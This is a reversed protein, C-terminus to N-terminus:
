RGVPGQKNKIFLIFLYLLYVKSSYKVGMSLAMCVVPISYYLIINSYYKVTIAEVIVIETNNMLLAFM